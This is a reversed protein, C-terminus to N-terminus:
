KWVSRLFIGLGFAVIGVATMVRAQFSELQSVRASLKEVQDRHDDISVLIQKVDRNTDRIMDRDEQTFQLLVEPM